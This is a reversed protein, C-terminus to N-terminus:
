VKQFNIRPDVLVYFMDSIIGVILGFLTFIYLSGFIVPYDRSIISEYGLLGLGDLSFIIEILLSGSLLMGLLASPISAIILLMANRFIHRYLVQQESLGKAYALLVYQKHIEELFSNKALLTLTAFGGISLSLVPLTIHWFYDKVKGFLSLSEFNDGVIGRLPFISFYTGGAFLIVLILAFLFTPIANGIIIMTSTVSDFASGENVAKKIGLPVSICYILLTSWLGLSISVPLKQAILDVVKANKYFSEGFNFTLYNKLMLLYRELIPKDFGYLANIKELIEPDLGQNKYMGKSNIQVEGQTGVGELRAIMQEVPGGPAIQIIFFNLTMIGLLTPIVLLLRKLIYSGM